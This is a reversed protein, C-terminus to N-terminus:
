IKNSKRWKKRWLIHFSILLLATDKLHFVNLASSKPGGKAHVESSPLQSATLVGFINAKNLEDACTMSILAGMNELFILYVSNFPM